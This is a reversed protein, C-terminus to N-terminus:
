KQAQSLLGKLREKTIRDKPSKASSQLWEQVRAPTLTHTVSPGAVEIELSAGDGPQCGHDRFACIGLVAAEFLTEAEINTTHRIGEHDLFAISCKRVM